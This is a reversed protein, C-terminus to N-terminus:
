TLHLIEPMGNNMIRAARAHITRIYEEADYKEDIRSFIEAGHILQNLRYVEYVNIFQWQVLQKKNNYFTEEEQQGLEQAKYFADTNSHAQVLRLQEDFQPTHRGDGCIIRFVIKVLFWNM